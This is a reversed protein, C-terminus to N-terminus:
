AATAIESDPATSLAPQVADGVSWELRQLASRTM